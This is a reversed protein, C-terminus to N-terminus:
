ESAEFLHSDFIVNFQKDFFDYRTYDGSKQEIRLTNLSMDNKEFCLTIGSIGKGNQPTMTVIWESMTSEVDIAFGKKMQQFDGTVCATLMAAFNKLMPNSATKTTSTKDAVKMEFYLQTMKIYDGNNYSLLMKDPQLFCFVGDKSVVNTLVSMEQTQHFCCKISTINKTKSSLEREFQEQLSINQASAPVVFLMWIWLVFKNRM